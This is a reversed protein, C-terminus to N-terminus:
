TLTFKRCARNQNDARRSAIRARSTSKIFSIIAPGGTSHQARHDHTRISPGNCELGSLPNAALSANVYDNIWHVAEAIARVQDGAMRGMWRGPRAAANRPGLANLGNYGMAPLRSSNTCLYKYIMEFPRTRHLARATCKVGRM